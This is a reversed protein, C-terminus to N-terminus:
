VKNRVAEKLRAAVKGLFITTNTRISPESDSQLNVVCRVLKDQLNNEDLKDVLHLLGMLTNERLTSNSDSFGSIMHDFITKNVAEKSLLKGLHRLSQLLVTRVTRDSLAFLSVISTGCHLTFVTEDLKQLSAMKALLNVCTVVSQRCTERLDRSM